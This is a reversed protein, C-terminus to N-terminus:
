RMILRSDQPTTKEKFDELDVLFREEEPCSIHRTSKRVWPEPPDSLIEMKRRRFREEDCYFFSETEGSFLVYCEETKTKPTFVLGKEVMIKREEEEEKSLPIEVEVSFRIFHSIERKNVCCLVDQICITSVNSCANPFLLNKVRSLNKAARDLLIYTQREQWLLNKHESCYGDREPPNTCGYEMCCGPKHQPM